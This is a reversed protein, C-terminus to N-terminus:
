QFFIPQNSSSTAPTSTESIVTANKVKNNLNINQLNSLIKGSNSLVPKIQKYLPILQNAVNLTKSLGGVIKLLSFSNNM